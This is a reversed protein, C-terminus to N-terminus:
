LSNDQWHIKIGKEQVSAEWGECVWLDAVAVLEEDIFILPVQDRWWPELGFEQLCKKLSTSHARGSPRCREGGQRFSVKLCGDKPIRIGEGIVTSAALMMPAELKSKANLDWLVKSSTEEFDNLVRASELLYLRDSYRHYEVDQCVVKPSADVRAGIVSSGIENIIKLGPASLGYCEAWYRLVNAQRLSPLLGFSRLSLSWGGRETRIKLGRMDEIAISHSLLDSNRSINAVGELRHRYDPWRDAILPILKNRLYNRDFDNSENSEDEIWQINNERAYDLLSSKPWNLLPRHLVGKGVSRTKPIGALGRPGTGRMLRYLLTEVQDDQHHGLLLIGDEDLCREFVEYRALRGADELGGGDGVLKVTESLFKVGLSQCFGEAHAQWHDANESLGHNIHIAMIRHAEVKQSLSHLLVSSDLGGSFGVVIQQANSLQDDLPDFVRTPTLTPLKAM